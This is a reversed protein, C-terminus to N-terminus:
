DGFFCELGLQDHLGQLCEAVVDLGDLFHFVGRGVDGNGIAVGGEHGVVPVGHVGVEVLVGTAVVLERAFAHVRVMGRLTVQDVLLGGILVLDGADGLEGVRLDGLEKVGIAVALGVQRAAVWAPAALGDNLVLEGGELQAIGDRM